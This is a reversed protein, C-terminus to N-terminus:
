SHERTAERALSQHVRSIKWWATYSNGDWSQSKNGRCHFTKDRRRQIEYYKDNDQFYYYDKGQFKLEISLFEDGWCARPSPFVNGDEGMFRKYMGWHRAQILRMKSCILVMFYFTMLTIFSSPKVLILHHSFYTSYRPFIGLFQLEGPAQYRFNPIDPM